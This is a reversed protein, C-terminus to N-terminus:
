PFLRLNSGAFAMPSISPKPPAIAWSGGGEGAPISEQASVVGFVKPPM